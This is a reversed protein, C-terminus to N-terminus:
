NNIQMKTTDWPRRSSIKKNAFTYSKNNDNLYKGNYIGAVFNYKNKLIINSKAFLKFVANHNLYLNNCEAFDEFIDYMGYGSCFDEPKSKSKRIKEANWSIKYFEISPDDISFISKDFETFNKNKKKSLGNISYLDIIHGFEHGLLQVFEGNYTITNTNVFVDDGKTWARKTSKEKQVGIIDFSKLIDRGLIMYKYLGGIIYVSGSLYDTKNSIPYVSKFTLKKCIKKNTSCLKDFRNQYSGVGYDISHLNSNGLSYVGHINNSLYDKKFLDLVNEGVQSVRLSLGLYIIIVAGVLKIFDILSVKPIIKTPM